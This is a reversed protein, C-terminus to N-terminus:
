PHVIANSISHPVGLLDGFFAGAWGDPLDRMRNKPLAQSQLFQRCLLFHSRDCIQIFQTTEPRGVVIRITEEGEQNRLPPGTAIPRVLPLPGTASATRRSM